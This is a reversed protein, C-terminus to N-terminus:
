RHGKTARRKVARAVAQAVYEHVWQHSLPLEHWPRWHKTLYGVPAAEFLIQGLPKRPRTM